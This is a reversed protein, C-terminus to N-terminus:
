ASKVFEGSGVPASAKTELNERWVAVWQICHLEAGEITRAHHAILYQMSSNGSTSSPRHPPSKNIIQHFKLQNKGFCFCFPTLRVTCAKATALLTIFNGVNLRQFVM